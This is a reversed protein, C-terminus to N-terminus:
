PAAVTCGVFRLKYNIVGGYPAREYDQNPRPALLSGNYVEFQGNSKLTKVTVANSLYASFFTTDMYALMAETLYGLNWVFEIFGDARQSLDLMTTYRTYAPYTTGNEDTPPGWPIVLLSIQDSQLPFNELQYGSSGNIVTKTLTGVALRYEM